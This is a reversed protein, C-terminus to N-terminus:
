FRRRAEEREKSRRELASDYERHKDESISQNNEPYGSQTGMGMSSQVMDEQRVGFAPNPTESGASSTSTEAYNSGAQYADEQQYYTGASYPDETEEDSERTTQVDALQIELPIDPIQPAESPTLSPNAIRPIFRPTNSFTDEIINELEEEEYEERDEEDEIEDEFDQKKPM